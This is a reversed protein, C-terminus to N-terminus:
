ACMLILVREVTDKVVMMEVTKELVLLNVNVSEM